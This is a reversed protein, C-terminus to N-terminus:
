KTSKRTDYWAPLQWKVLLADTDGRATAGYGSSYLQGNQVDMGFLLENDGLGSDVRWEELRLGDPRYKLVVGDFGTVSGGWVFGTVYVNGHVDCEIASASDVAIWEHSADYLDDFVLNGSSDYRLTLVNSHVGGHSPGCLVVGGQPHVAAQFPIEDGGYWSDYRQSWEVVGDRSLKAVLVDDDGGAASSLGAVYVEQNRGVAVTYGLDFDPTEVLTDWLLDGAPSFKLAGIDYSSNGSNYSTLAVYVNGARDTVVGYPADYSGGSGDYLHKWLLTGDPALKVVAVDTGSQSSWQYHAFVVNDQDDTTISYSAASGDYGGDVGASIHVWREVGQPSYAVVATDLLGDSGTTDGMAYVRGKSDTIGTWCYDIGNGVGNWTASWRENGNQDYAVVAFDGTRADFDFDTIGFIVPRGNPDAAVDYGEDHRGAPGNWEAMWTPPRDGLTLAALLTLTSVGIM